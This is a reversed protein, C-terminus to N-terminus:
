AEDATASRALVADAGNAFGALRASHSDDPALYVLPPRDDFPRLGLRRCLSLADDVGDILVAAYAALDDPLARRGAQQVTFGHPGLWGALPLDGASRDTVLLLPPVAAGM